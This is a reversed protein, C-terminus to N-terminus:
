DVCSCLVPGRNSRRHHRSIYSLASSQRARDYMSLEILLWRKLDYRRVDTYFFEVFVILRCPGFELGSLFFSLPLYLHVEISQLTSPNPVLIM